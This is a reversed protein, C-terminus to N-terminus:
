FHCIISLYCHEFNQWITGFNHEQNEFNHECFSKSETCMPTCYRCWIRNKLQRQVTQLIGEVFKVIASTYQSFWFLITSEQNLTPFINSRASRRITQSLVQAIRAIAIAEIAPIASSLTGMHDGWDDWTKCVISAIMHFGPKLLSLCAHYSYVM